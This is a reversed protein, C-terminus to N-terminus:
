SLDTENSLYRVMYGYTGLQTKARLNRPKCLLNRAFGFDSIKIEADDKKSSFLINEPKIDRHIIGRSHLYAVASFLKRALAVVDRESFSKTKLIRDFLEGGYALETVIHVDGNSSEYVDKLRIINRHRITSLIQMEERFLSPDLDNSSKPIIKVAYEHSPDRMSTCVYVSGSAGSGLMCNPLLKYDQEFRRSTGHLKNRRVPQASTSGSASRPAPASATATPADAHALAFARSPPIQVVGQAKHEEPPNTVTHANMLQVTSAIIAAPENSSTLESTPTDNSGAESAHAPSALPPASLPSSLAAQRLLRQSLSEPAGVQSRMSADGESGFSSHSRLRTDPESMMQSPCSASRVSPLSSDVVHTVIHWCHKKASWSERGQVM